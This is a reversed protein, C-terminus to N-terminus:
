FYTKPSGLDKHAQKLKELNYWKIFEIVSKWLKDIEIELLAKNISFFPAILSGEKDNNLIKSCKKVVPMLWDWSSHYELDEITLYGYVTFYYKEMDKMDSKELGDFMAILKNGEIIEEQTM